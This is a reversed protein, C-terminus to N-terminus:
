SLFKLALGAVIAVVALFILFKIVKLIGVILLVAALGWLVYAPVDLKALLWAEGGM